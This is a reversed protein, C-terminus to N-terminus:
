KCEPSFLSLRLMFVCLCLCFCSFRPYLDCVSKSCLLCTAQLGFVTVVFRKRSIPNHIFVLVSDEVCFRKGAERNLEVDFYCQPRDKVGM